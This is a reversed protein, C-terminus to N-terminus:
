YLPIKLTMFNAKGMDHMVGLIRFSFIIDQIAGTPRCGADLLRSSDPKVLTHYPGLRLRGCIRDLILNSQPQAFYSAAEPVMM